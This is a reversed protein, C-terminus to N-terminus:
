EFAKRGAEILRRVMESRKVGERKALSDVAAVETAPLRICVLPSREGPSAKGSLNPRGMLKQKKGTKTRKPSKSIQIVM